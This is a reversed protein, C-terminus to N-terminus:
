EIVESAQALLAQPFNLGLAAGTRLNLVLEFKVSQVVPLDAPSGGDLIRGTYVGVQRYSDALDIGYSMLGGKLAFERIHYVAPLRHQNVFAIIRDARTDFFPSAAVLLGEARQEKLTEFVANLEADNGAYLLEIRKGTVRAAEKLAKAQAEATQQFRADVLAAIMTANPVIERLIGLRKPELESTLNSIGTANGGPRAISTVLGLEVPDGGIAFVIPIKSTTGKAALASPEGGVAALVTVRHDVLDAALGPLRDYQGDAWRFEIAVNRGETYGTDSLGDRFASLIRVSDGQGRSSLFGIMPMANKEARAFTPLAIATGGMLEMFQRRKM